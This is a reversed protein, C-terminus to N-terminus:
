LNRGGVGGFPAKECCCPNGPSGGDCWVCTVEYWFGGISVGCLEGWGSRAVGESLGLAGESRCAVVDMINYVLRFGEVGGDGAPDAPARVWVGLDGVVGKALSM